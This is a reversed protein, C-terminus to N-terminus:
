NQDDDSDDLGDLEILLEHLGARCAFVTGAALMWLVPGEPEFDPDDLRAEVEDTFRRITNLGGRVVERIDPPGPSPDPSPDHAPPRRKNNGDGGRLIAM